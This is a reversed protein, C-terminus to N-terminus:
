NKVKHVLIYIEIVYEHHTCGNPNAHLILRRMCKAKSLKHRFCQGSYSLLNDIGGLKM